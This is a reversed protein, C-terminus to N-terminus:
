LLGGLSASYLSSLCHHGVVTTHNTLFQIHAHNICFLLFETKGAKGSPKFTPPSGLLKADSNRMFSLIDQHSSFQVCKETRASVIFAKLLFVFVFDAWPGCGLDYFWPSDLIFDCSSRVFLCLCPSSMQVFLHLVAPRPLSYSVPSICLALRQPSFVCSPFKLWSVLPLLVKSIFSSVCSTFVCFFCSLRSFHSMILVFLLFGEFHSLVCCLHHLSFYSLVWFWSVYKMCFLVVCVVAVVIVASTTHTPAGPTMLVCITLTFVTLALLLVCVNQVTNHNQKKFMTEHKTKNNKRGSYNSIQPKRQQSQTTNHNVNWGKTRKIRGHQRAKNWSHGKAQCKRNLEM